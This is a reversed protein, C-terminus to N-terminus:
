YNRRSLVKLHFGAVEIGWYLGIVDGPNVRLDCALNAWGLFYTDNPGREFYINEGVYRRAHNPRTNTHDWILMPIKHSGFVGLSAFSMSWYRFIHDFVEEHTLTIKGSIIDYYTIKKCIVWPNNPDIIPPDYIDRIEVLYRTPIYPTQNTNIITEEAKTPLFVYYFTKHTTTLM